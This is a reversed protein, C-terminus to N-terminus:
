KTEGVNQVFRESPSKAMQPKFTIWSQQGPELGVGIQIPIRQESARPDAPIRCCGQCPSSTGLFFSLLFLNLATQAM